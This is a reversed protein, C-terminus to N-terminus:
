REDPSEPSPVPTQHLYKVLKLSGSGLLILGDLGFFLPFSYEIRLGSLVLGMGILIGIFALLYYRHQGLRYGAQIMLVGMILGCVLPGWGTLKTDTVTTFIVFALILAMVGVAIAVDGKSYKERKYAVYGTRPYTTREKVRQMIWRGGFAGGCVLIVSVIGFVKSLLSGTTSEQLYYVIAVLLFLLGVFLEGVGDVTWYQLTRLQPDKLDDTMNIM